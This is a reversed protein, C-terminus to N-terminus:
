DSKAMNAPKSGELASCEEAEESKWKKKGVENQTKRKKKRKRGEGPIYESRGDTVEWPCCM